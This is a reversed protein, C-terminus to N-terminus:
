RNQYGSQRTYGSEAAFINEDRKNKNMMMPPRRDGTNMMHTTKVTNLPSVSRNNNSAMRSENAYKTTTTRNDNFAM